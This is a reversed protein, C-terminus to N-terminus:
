KKKLRAGNQSIWIKKNITKRIIMGLITILVEFIFPIIRDYDLPHSVREKFESILNMEDESFYFKYEFYLDNDTVNEKLVLKLNKSDFGFLNDISQRFFYDFNRHFFITYRYKIKRQENKNQFEKWKDSIDSIFASYITTDSKLENLLIKNISRQNFLNDKLQSGVRLIIHEKNETM